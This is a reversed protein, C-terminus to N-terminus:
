CFVFLVNNKDDSLPNSLSEIIATKGADSRRNCAQDSPLNAMGLSEQM